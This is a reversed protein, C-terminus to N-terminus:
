NLFVRGTCTDGMGKTAGSILKMLQKIVGIESVWRFANRSDSRPTGM